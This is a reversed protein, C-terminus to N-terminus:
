ADWCAVPGLMIGSHPHAIVERVLDWHMRMVANYHYDKYETVLTSSVKGDVEFQNSLIGLKALTPIARLSDIPGKYNTRMLGGTPALMHRLVCPPLKCLMLEKGQFTIVCWDIMSRMKVGHQEQFRDLLKQVVSPDDRDVEFATCHYSRPTRIHRMLESELDTSTMHEFYFGGASHFVLSNNQVFVRVEGDLSEKHLPNSQPLKSIRANLKALIDHPIDNCVLPM